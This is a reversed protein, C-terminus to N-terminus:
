GPPLLEEVENSTSHKYAQVGGMREGNPLASSRHHGKLVADASGFPFVLEAGAGIFM